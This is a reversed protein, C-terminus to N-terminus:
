EKQEEKSVMSKRTDKEDERQSQLDIDTEIAEMTLDGYKDIVEALSWEHKMDVEVEIPKVAIIGTKTLWEGERFLAEIAAKYAGVRANDNDATEGLNFLAKQAIRIKAIIATSRRKAEEADAEMGQIKPLWQSMSNLDRAITLPSCEFKSSAMSKIEPPTLERVFLEYVYLRRLM